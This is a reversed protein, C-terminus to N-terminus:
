HSSLTILANRGRGCVRIEYCDRTLRCYITGKKPYVPFYDVVKIETKSLDIGWESLFDRFKAGSPSLDDFNLPYRESGTSLYFDELAMQLVEAGKIAEAAKQREVIEIYNPIAIAALIGIIIIVIMLEIFTFGKNM